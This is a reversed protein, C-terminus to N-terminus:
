KQNMQIYLPVEHQEIQHNDIAKIQITAVVHKEVVVYKTKTQHVIILNYIKTSLFSKKYHVKAFKGMKMQKMMSKNKQMKIM